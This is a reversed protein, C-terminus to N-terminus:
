GPFHSQVASIIESVLETIKPLSAIASVAAAGIASLIVSPLEKAFPRKVQDADLYVRAFPVLKHARTFAFAFIVFLFLFILRNPFDFEPTYIILLFFAITNVTLGHRRLAGTFVGSFERMFGSLRSAVAETWMEDSSSVIIKSDMDDSLYITIIKKLGTDDPKEVSLTFEDVRRPLDRRSMYEASNQAIYQDGEKARIIPIVPQEFYSEIEAILREVDSRYLTIAGLKVEKNAVILQSKELPSLYSPESSFSRRVFEFVGSSNDAFRWSGNRHSTSANEILLEGIVISLSGDQEM